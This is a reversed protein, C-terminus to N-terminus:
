NEVGKVARRYDMDSSITNAIDLFSNKVNESQPMKRAIQVLLNTKDMDSSIKSTANILSIWQEESRINKKTLYTLMTAKDMDDGLHGVADLLKDFRQGDPIGTEVLQKLLNARDFNFGISNIEELIKDFSELDFTRNHILQKLLNAKEFDAKLLRTSYIVQDFQEDNLPHQLISKLLNAKEFDAGICAVSEMWANSTLSDELYIASFRKLLRTKEFDAGIESCIKKTTEVLELESLVNRSLLYEIYMSKVYDSKINSVEDFVAQSGGNKYLRELRGKADLGNAIMEKIAEAIFRKGNNSLPDLKKGDDYIEYSVEGHFNSEALLKIHNKKFELYGDPTISQISTEDDNFRIDGSYNIKLYEHGNTITISNGRKCSAAAIILCLALGILKSKKM